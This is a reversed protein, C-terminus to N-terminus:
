LLSKEIRVRAPHHTRWRRSTTRKQNTASMAEIPRTVEVPVAYELEKENGLVSDALAILSSCDTAGLCDPSVSCTTKPVEPPARSVSVATPSCTSLIIVESSARGCTDGM